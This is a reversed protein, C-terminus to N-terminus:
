EDEKDMGKIIKFAAFMLFGIAFLPALKVLGSEWGAVGLTTWATSCIIQEYTAMVLGIMALGILFLLAIAVVKM